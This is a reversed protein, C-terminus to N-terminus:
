KMWIRIFIFAALAILVGEIWPEAASHGTALMYVMFASLVLAAIVGRYSFIFM